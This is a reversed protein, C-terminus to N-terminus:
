WDPSDIYGLRLLVGNAHPKFVAKQEPGFYQKWDGHIGKRFFKFDPRRLRHYGRKQEIEQLSKFSSHKVAKDIRQKDAPLGAFEAIRKLQEAPQILMDEYRVLLFSINDAHDLWSEVHQHWPGPFINLQLFELFTAQLNHPCHYHYHSVKVDRGDRVVYIVRKCDPYYPWHSAILRPPPTQRIKDRQSAEHIGPILDDVVSFDAPQHSNTILNALLFRVWTTGSRPYSVIMIDEPFIEPVKSKVAASKDSAIPVSAIPTPYNYASSANATVAAAQKAQEHNEM